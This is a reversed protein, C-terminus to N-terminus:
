ERIAVVVGVEAWRYLEAANDDNLMICGFTAKQGILGDWIRGRSDHWPLGHFGNMVSAGPAPRYIGMFYPMTLEWASAYAEREHDQIQFAGPSTPSDDIGTSAPWDWLLRGNEYAQLRQESIDIEIRKDAPIPLEILLDSPPIQLEQGPSLADGVTPNAAAIYPYPLGFARAVSVVTDGDAVRHVRPRHRVRASAVVKGSEIADALALAQDEAPVFRDGALEIQEFAADAFRLPDLKWIPREPREADLAILSWASWEEVPVPRDEVSGDVPDLLRLTLGASLRDQAAVSAASADPISAELERLAPVFRRDRLISAANGQLELSSAMIEIEWGATAPVVEARGERIRVGADVPPLRHASSLQGLATTAAQMDVALVPDIARRFGPRAVQRREAGERGVSALAALSRGFDMRLGLEKARVAQVGDPLQVDITAERWAADLREAAARSDLGGFGQGLMSAGPMIRGSRALLGITLLWLALLLTLGFGLKLSLSRFEQAPDRERRLREAM